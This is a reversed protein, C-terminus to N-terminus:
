HRFLHAAEDSLLKEKRWLGGAYGTLAGNSGIVRHCPVLISVPNRGVAGGVAQPSMTKLGMAVALSEAITGYTATKGFPVRLLENWVCLQFPTGGLNLPISFSKLGGAFYSDLEKQLDVFIVGGQRERFTRTDPFYKQGIFWLGKLGAEDACALMEGLPTTIKASNNM